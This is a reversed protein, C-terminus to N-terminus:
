ERDGTHLNASLDNIVRTAYAAEKANIPGMLNIDEREGGPVDVKMVRVGFAQMMISRFGKEDEKTPGTSQVAKNIKRLSFLPVTGGLLPPKDIVILGGNHRKSPDPPVLVLRWYHWNAWKKYFLFLSWILLICGVGLLILQAIQSEKFASYSQVAWGPIPLLSFIAPLLLVGISLLLSLVEGYITSRPPRTTLTKKKIQGTSPDKEEGVVITEPRRKLLQFFLEKSSRRIEFVATTVNLFNEEAIRNRAFKSLEVEKLNLNKPPRTDRIPQYTSQSANQYPREATVIPIEATDPRNVAVYQEGSEKQIPIKISPIKLGSRRVRIIVYAVIMLGIAITMIVRWMDSANVFVWIVLSTASLYIGAIIVWAIVKEKTIKGYRGQVKDLATDLAKDLKKM